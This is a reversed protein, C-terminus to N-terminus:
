SLGPITTVPAKASYRSAIFTNTARSGSRCSMLCKAPISRMSSALSAIRMQPRVWGPQTTTSFVRLSDVRDGVRALFAALRQGLQREFCAPPLSVSRTIARSGSAGSWSSCRGTCRLLPSRGACNLSNFTCSPAGRSARHDVSASAGSLSSCRTSRGARASNPLRQRGGVRWPDRALGRSSRWAPSGAAPHSDTSM